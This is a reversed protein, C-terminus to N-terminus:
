RDNADIETEGLPRMFQKCKILSHIIIVVFDGSSLLLLWHSICKEKPGTCKNILFSDDLIFILQLVHESM